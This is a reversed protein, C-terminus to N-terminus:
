DKYVEEFLNLCDSVSLRTNMPLDDNDKLYALKSLITRIKKISNKNM